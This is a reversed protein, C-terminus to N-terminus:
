VRVHLSGVDLILAVNGDGLITAGAIGKIKSLIRGLSKIVIEQQGVLADVIFGIKNRGVRVVVVPYEHREEDDQPTDLTAALDGLSLVEGRLLTVPKGHMRKLDEKRVLITEDVNELPIAYTEEGVKVLLALVIALTLPLRIYVNTGEGVKSRAEFQGGLSEVKRKVADMGVGRGSLDTVEKAMSFGPLFVYQIIEDDSMEALAEKTVLGREIAKKGVAVPDIGKGDDSVEIIVSSGEQYAAIKITGKSPKGAAKRVEPTEIGHDVSNRILHVMPDGIEDIVTRDLETEQGEIVLEVDKGLTKSIDRILRPFRDFIFSVPVMRLKTVLEQIDGSIRGLQSLPEDFERLKSEMVLREIRAKGIVLEGVLNMLSDLRGIDVRVTQSGKKPKAKAAPAKSDEQPSAKQPVASVSPQPTAEQEEENLEEEYGAFSFELPTVDVGVVESVGMVANQVSEIDDKTGLYIRFSYDFADKELDEVPPDSKIIEGIEELRSVVMYARAAKLLCEKDLNVTIEVVMMGMKSAEQIWEREQPSLEEPSLGETKNEVPAVAAEEERLQSVLKSIDTDQDTGGDRIADVMTQMLDLSQFLHDLDDDTLDVEGSRVKSFRDELAHTLEAMHHFGMTASMGKLTHATRFIEDVTERNQRNQEVALILDNLQQLNDTAEDLYAGLYQSMDTSM